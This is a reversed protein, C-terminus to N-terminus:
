AAEDQRGDPEFLPVWIDENQEFLVKVPMGFYVKDPPCNVINTALRVDDQEEITVLALVYPAKLGPVWQKHNVTFTEVRARGSVPKPAVSRGECQPCFSTPPHVFYGCDGCCNILLNGKEGGTWFATNQMDLLPLARAPMPETM